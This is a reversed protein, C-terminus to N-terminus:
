AQKNIGTIKCIHKPQTTACDLMSYIRFGVLGKKICEDTNRFMEIVINKQIGILMAEPSFVLADNGLTTDNKLQNSVIQNMSQMQKPSELYRGYNDKLLSLYEETDANIAYVSPNGNNKKIKSIAKIFDDYGGNSVGEIENILEDNMIGKPAFDDNKSLGTNYQGYLMALDIANAIANAFTSTIVQSLNQSSEIAELSVYAYGYCTKSKLEVSELELNSEQSEKGEEKFKFKPDEKVRSITINNSEMPIVPVNASTFLSIDRAVDIIRSSLVTPILTGMTSTTISRKELEAGEWNGTVIGRVYKGIDLDREEKNIEIKNELFDGKRLAIGDLVDTSKAETENKKPNEYRYSSLPNFGGINRLETEKRAGPDSESNFVIEDKAGFADKINRIEEETSELENKLKDLESNSSCSEVLKVLEAKRQEKAKILNLVKEKNM